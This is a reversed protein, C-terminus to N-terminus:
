NMGMANTVQEYLQYPVGHCVVMCSTPIVPSTNLAKLSPSWMMAPWLFLDYLTYIEMSLTLIILYTILAGNPVIGKEPQIRQAYTMRQWLNNIKSVCIYIQKRVNKLEPMRKQQATVQGNCLRQKYPFSKEFVGKRTEMRIFCPRSITQFMQRPGLLWFFNLSNLSYFRSGLM